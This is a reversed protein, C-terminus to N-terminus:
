HKVEMAPDQPVMKIQRYLLFIIIASLFFYIATFLIFSYRIGPMPTVADATKMIGHIIWPQRGVETVTWGAEIAIFGLPTAAVFLKMLWPRVVWSHQRFVSIFYILSILMLISGLGVMVQFAYHTIAVPPQENLPIKDLGKVESNIDRNVMFSLLGPIKIAYDVKKNKSDPVGGIILASRKETIFHAEMAALKAPQSRSVFRASLDGSFPQILAAITGFVAAIRFGVSHFSINKKRLIMLAHIGAVAFGTASFAGIVMHLSESFWADNFMAKVPDINLYKGNVFDFGSPSNMWGNAAVVLIGSLVGCVGVVIGTFWHFWPNLRKWGYLFFGLAIAEIFFATGELSFPMGFIPGAHKM